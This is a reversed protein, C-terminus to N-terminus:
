SADGLAPGVEGVVQDVTSAIVDAHESPIYSHTGPVSAALRFNSHSEILPTLSARLRDVREQTDYAHAQAATIFAVPCDLLDYYPGLGACIEDLELQARALQVSTMRGRGGLRILVRTLPSMPKLVGRVRETEVEDLRSVPFAGDVLVLASIEGPHAAAYRVALAAGLSWGVLVPKCVGTADLVAVLDDLCGAFSYDKSGGSRGRGREDYTVVRCRGALLAKTAAWDDQTGIFSNLLLVPYGEGETDNGDLVTDAVPIRLHRSM